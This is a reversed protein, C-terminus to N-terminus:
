KSFEKDIADLYRALPDERPPLEKQIINPLDLFDNFKGSLQETENAEYYDVYDRVAKTQQACVMTFTRLDQLRKDIDKTKGEKLDAVISLYGLIVPRLLISAQEHLVRLANANKDLIKERDPRNLIHKYDEIHIEVWQSGPPLTPLTTDAEDKAPSTAPPAQPLPVPKAAPNTTRPSGDATKVPKAAPRANPNTTQPPSKIRPKPEDKKKAAAPPAPQSKGESVKDKADEKADGDKPKKRKL